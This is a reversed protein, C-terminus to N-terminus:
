HTWVEGTLPHVILGLTNRHGLSYIEPRYGARGVFPNDPPISGDDRLRMIKGRHSQPDQAADSNLAGGELRGRALATAVQKNEYPKNYTLYVLRNESFKPHLAVDMLGALQIALVEPM